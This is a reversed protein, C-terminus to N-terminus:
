EENGGEELAAVEKKRLLTDVFLWAEYFAMTLLSAPLILYVIWMPWDMAASLQGSQYTKIIFFISYYGAVGAFAMNILSGFCEVIKRPMFPLRNVVADVSMQKGYRLGIQSGLLAMWVQAFRALEETWSLPIKFINRNLVQFFCMSAMLVFCGVCLASEFKSLANLLKKM